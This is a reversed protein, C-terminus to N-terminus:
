KTKGEFQSISVTRQWVCGWACAKGCFFRSLRSSSRRQTSQAPNRQNLQLATYINRPAAACMALRKSLLVFGYYKSCHHAATPNIPISRQTSAESRPPASPEACIEQLYKSSILQSVPLMVFGYFERYISSASTRQSPWCVPSRRTHPKSPSTPSSLAM